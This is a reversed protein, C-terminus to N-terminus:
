RKRIGSLKKWRETIETKDEEGANQRDQPVGIAKLASRAWSVNTTERSAEDAINILRVYKEKLNNPLKEYYLKNRLFSEISDAAASKQASMMHVGTREAERPFAKFFDKDEPIAEVIDGINDLIFQQALLMPGRNDAPGTQYLDAHHLGFVAFIYRAIIIISIAGLDKQKIKNTIFNEYVKYDYQDTQNAAKLRSMGKLGSPIKAVLLEDISPWGLGAYAAWSVDLSKGLLDLFDQKIKVYKHPIDTKMIESHIYSQEPQKVQIDNADMFQSTAYHFQYKRHSGAPRPLFRAKKDILVILPNEASYYDRFYDLGPAATCWDTGKGWHCAAGKNHIAAIFFDDDDRFIETGQDVNDYSKKNQYREIADSADETNKVFEDFTKIKNIDKEPMFQQYHFFKEMPGKIYRIYEYLHDRSVSYVEAAVAKFPASKRFLENRIEFEESDVSYQTTTSPPYRPDYSKDVISALYNIDYIKSSRGGRGKIKGADASDAINVISQMIESTIAQSFSYSFEQPNENYVSDPIEKDTRGVSILWNLAAGKERDDLDLSMVIKDLVYGYIKAFVKIYTENELLGNFVVMDELEDDALNFPDGYDKRLDYLSSKVLKKTVKTELRQRAQDLSIENLLYARWNEFLLKM